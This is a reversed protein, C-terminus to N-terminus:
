RLNGERLARRAKDMIQSRRVSQEQLEACRQLLEGPILSILESGCRAFIDEDFIPLSGLVAMVEEASTCLPMREKAEQFQRAVTAPETLAEWERVTLALKVSQEAKQLRTSLTTRM